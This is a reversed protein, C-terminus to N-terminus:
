TAYGDKEYIGDKADWAYCNGMNLESCIWPPGMPPTDCNAQLEGLTMSASSCSKSWDGACNALAAMAACILMPTTLLQIM